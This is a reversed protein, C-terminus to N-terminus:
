KIIGSMALGILGLPILLGTQWIVVLAVTMAAVSGIAKLFNHGSGSQVACKTNDRSETIVDYRKPQPEKETPKPEAAAELHQPQQKKRRTQKAKQREAEMEAIRSLLADNEAKLRELEASDTYVPEPEPEAELAVVEADETVVVADETNVAPEAPEATESTVVDETTTVEETAVEKCPLDNIEEETAESWRGYLQGKSNRLPLMSGSGYRLHQGLRDEVLECDYELIRDTWHCALHWGGDEKQTLIAYIKPNAGDWYKLAKQM